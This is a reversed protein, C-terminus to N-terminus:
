TLYSTCALLNIEESIMRSLWSLSDENFTRYYQFLYLGVRFTAAFYVFTRKNLQARGDLHQRPNRSDIERPISSSPISSFLVQQLNYQIVSFAAFMAITRLVVSCNHHSELFKNMFVLPPWLWWSSDCIVYRTDHIVRCAHLVQLFSPKQCLTTTGKKM